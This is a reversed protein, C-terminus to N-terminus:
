PSTPKLRERLTEIATDLSSEEDRTLDQRKRREEMAHLFATVDEQTTAAQSAFHIAFYRRDPVVAQIEEVVADRLGPRDLFFVSPTAFYWDVIGTDGAFGSVDWMSRTQPRAVYQRLLEDLLRKMWVIERANTSSGKKGGAMLQAGRISIALDIVDQDSGTRLLDLVKDISMGRCGMNVLFARRNAPSGKLVQTEWLRDIIEARQPHEVRNRWDFCYPVRDDRVEQHEAANMPIDILCRYAVNHLPRPNVNADASEGILSELWPVIQSSKAFSFTCLVEALYRDANSGEFFERLEPQLDEFLPSLDATRLPQVRLAALASAQQQANGNRYSDFIRMVARQMQPDGMRIPSAYIKPWPREGNLAFLLAGDRHLEEIDDSEAYTERIGSELWVREWGWLGDFVKAELGRPMDPRADSAAVWERSLTHRLPILVAAPVVRIWGSALGVGVRDLFLGVVLVVIGIRFLGKNRRTQFMAKETVVVRGCEPCSLPLTLGDLSYWCRPCRKRGRSKDFHWATWLVVPVLLLAVWGGLRVYNMRDDYFGSSFADGIIPLKRLARLSPEGLRMLLAVAIWGLGGVLSIWIFIGGLLGAVARKVPPFATRRVGIREARSAWSVSM